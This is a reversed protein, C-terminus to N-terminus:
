WDWYGAGTAAIAPREQWYEDGYRESFNWYDDSSAKTANAKTTINSSQLQQVITSAMLLERAAEYEM